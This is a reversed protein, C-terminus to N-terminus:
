RAYFYNVIPKTTLVVIPLRLPELLENVALSLAVTGLAPDVKSSIDYGTYGDLKALLVIADVGGVKITAYTLAATTSWITWYWVMFGIGYDRALAKFKGRFTYLEGTNIGRLTNLRSIQQDLDRLEMEKQFNTLRAVREKEQEEEKKSLPEFNTSFTRYRDNQDLNHSLFLTSLAYPTLTPSSKMCNSSSAVRFHAFSATRFNQFSGIRSYAMAYQGVIFANGNLSMAFARQM